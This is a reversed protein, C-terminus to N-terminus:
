KLSARFPNKVEDTATKTLADALTSAQEAFTKMQSQIFEAQLQLFEQVDRAQSLRRVFQHTTAINTESFSKLKDGFATGGSPLSSIARSVFDFYTDVANLAHTRAEESVHKIGDATDAFARKTQSNIGEVTDEAM